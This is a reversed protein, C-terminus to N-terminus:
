VGLAGRTLNYDRLVEDATLERPIFAPGLPGGALSGNLYAGPGVRAGFIVDATDGAEMATYIGSALGTDTAISGDIYVEFGAADASGDYTGVIHYWVGTSLANNDRGGIRADTSDDHTSFVTQASNSNFLSWQTGPGFLDATKTFIANNVATTDLKVWVSLSFPQDTSDDGRIWYAANPSSGVEDTGNCDLVPIIGQLVYPYTDSDALADHGDFARWPESYTFTAQLEGVTTFTGADPNGHHPDGIPLITSRDDVVKVTVLANLVPLVAGTGGDVTIAKNTVSTVTMGQRQGATTGDDFFVDLTDATTIGHGANSDSVVTIVGTDDDTRTTLEGHITDFLALRAAYIPAWKTQAWKLYSSRNLRERIVM